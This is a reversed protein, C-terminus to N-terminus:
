WGGKRPWEAIKAGQEIVAYCIHQAATACAHNPLIRLQSGIPFRALDLRGAPTRMGIIGHEQNCERVIVDGLPVGAVDCVLGYGQDVAQAATGRDRSLAMWGADTILLGKQPQHGIVTALVSLAIQGVDAVGLGAMVLDFFTYVGARVETVGTLDVRALATPTSGISVAPCAIGAARIRSAAQVCGRAENHAAAQRAEASASGYAGGAHTMVGALQLAPDTAILAALPVLDASEPRIGARHGDVDIEIMVPLVVAQARAADAIIQAQAADDVVVTVRAGAKLLAAVRAIKAPVMGVAYLIDEAGHAFFHEAEALTSVTIGRTGGGAVVERWVAVSKHTKVHPRLSAGSAGIVEAMLAINRRMQARDILLAPTPVNPLGCPNEVGSM